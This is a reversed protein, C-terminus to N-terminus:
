LIFSTVGQHKECLVDPMQASLLVNRRSFYLFRLDVVTAKELIFM